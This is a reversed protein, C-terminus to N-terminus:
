PNLVMFRASTRRPSCRCPRVPRSYKATKMLLTKDSYRSALNLDHIAVVAALSKETVVNRITDMVELQHRIDLNSTPEDLLLVGTEQALARAVFVKQQQGGSLENFDEMALDELKLLRLIDIVKDIDRENAVWGMHPKRGMLVVDFVTAPFRQSIRQPIYGINRALTIRSMKFIDAGDLTVTGRQPSLIRDICKILTSKGTGNPGVVGLIESHSVEFVIDRLIPSSTYKFELGTVSLKM